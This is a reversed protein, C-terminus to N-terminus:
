SGVPYPNSLTNAPTLGGDTSAVFNTSVAFGLSTGPDFAPLYSVGYGGRFVTKDNIQYAVGFRPGFNNLDRKFPLRDDESVFLMGGKLPLGPVQFPNTANKDFGANLQNFRESTPSEYDWRLGLNLTLRRSVRWDDQFFLGYYLHQYAFSPNIPVSASAPYGLLLSAFANGSAADAALPNRQTFVRTSISPQRVSSTPHRLQRTSLASRRRVEAFSERADQQANGLFSSADSFTFRSGNDFGIGGM